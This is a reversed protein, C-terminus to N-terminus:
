PEGTEPDQSDSESSDIESSDIEPSDADTSDTDPTSLDPELLARDIPQGDADVMEVHEILWELAKSKKWDSRVAPMQDARELSRRLDKSKMKYSAALRDIDDDIDQDTPELNEGEAVARLALDAKVAPVAGERLSAVFEEPPQGSAQLYQSITAGQSELRQNLDQVRRELEADILSAPPDVDVLEVLADVAANRLALTSQVRKVLGMRKEIDARLEEVTDFESAESVWEDTVEPLKKQKAEKVLVRLNAPDEGPIDADFALIDGVKSGRLQEDLETLVTGSGVEYLFDDTTLGAVAEGHRSGHLDITLFDGDIAPRNIEMLEGFNGRLRDVQGDIDEDTVVPSPVVVRLGGYGALHLQPRVEVVADFEVPGSEQGATIDIEPPAVVDVENDRVARSYYGPLADRLAEARGTEKGLRVELIRRPAKGPRFGPVRVERAIKRFAADIDKEFEQEEVQVTLKVKNGELPEVVAKM